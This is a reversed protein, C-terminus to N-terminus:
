FIRKMALAWDSFGFARYLAQAEINNFGTFLCLGSAGMERAIHEAHQMLAKAIGRRRYAVEVFLDNISAFPQPQAIMSTFSICLFGVIAGDWEALIAREHPANRMLEAQQQPSRPPNDFLQMLRALEAADAPTALRTYVM